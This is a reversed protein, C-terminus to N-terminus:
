RYLATTRAAMIFDNLHLGGIVHTWWRVTVCRWEITIQPHHDHREAIEATRNAFGMAEKYDSFEFIRELSKVSEVEVVRWAPVDPLLAAIQEETLSTAGGRCPVCELKMLDPM